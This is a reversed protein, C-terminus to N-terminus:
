SPDEVLGAARQRQRKKQKGAAVGDDAEILKLDRAVRRIGSPSAAATLRVRLAAAGTVAAAMLGAAAGRGVVFPAFAALAAFSGWPSQVVLWSHM